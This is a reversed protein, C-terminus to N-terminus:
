RHPASLRWALVAVIALRAVFFASAIAHLAAFSLPGQGARASEIMPLLAYHGGIVCLLAALALGLDLGFRSGHGGEARDRGLQLGILALVAGAGVGITADLSFLRAAVRGADAKPLLAFLVPAAVGGIGIM